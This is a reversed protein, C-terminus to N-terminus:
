VWNRLTEPEVLEYFHEETGSQLSQFNLNSHSRRGKIGFDHGEPRRFPSARNGFRRPLGLQFLGRGQATVGGPALANSCITAM